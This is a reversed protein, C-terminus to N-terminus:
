RGGRGLSPDVTAVVIHVAAIGGNSVWTKTGNLRFDGSPLRTASTRIAGIDSGADPEPACFAGVAVDFADGFM